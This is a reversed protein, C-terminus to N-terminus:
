LAHGFTPFSEVVLVSTRFLHTTMWSLLFLVFRNWHHTLFSGREPSSVIWRAYLHWSPYHTTCRLRETYSCIHTIYSSKRIHFPLKTVIGSCSWMTSYFKMESKCSLLSFCFCLSTSIMAISASHQSSALNSRLRYLIIAKWLLGTLVQVNRTSENLLFLCHKNLLLM